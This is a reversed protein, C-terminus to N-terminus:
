EASLYPNESNNELRRYLRIEAIPPLDNEQNIPLYQGGSQALRRSIRRM